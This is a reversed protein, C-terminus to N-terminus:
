NNSRAYTRTIKGVRTVNSGKNMLDTAFGIEVCELLALPYDLFLEGTALYDQQINGVFIDAPSTLFTCPNFKRMTRVFVIM